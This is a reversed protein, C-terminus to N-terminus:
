DLTICNEPPADPDVEHVTPDNRGTLWNLVRQSLVVNCDKYDPKGNDDDDGVDDDSLEVCNVEVAQEVQEGAETNCQNKATSLNTENNQVGDDNKLRKGAELSKNQSADTNKNEDVPETKLDTEVQLQSCPIIVADLNAVASTTAQPGVDFWARETRAVNETSADMVEPEPVEPELSETSERARTRKKPPRADDMESNELTDNLAADDLSRWDGTWKRKKPINRTNMIPEQATGNQSASSESPLLEDSTSVEQNDVPNNQSLEHEDDNVGQNENAESEQSGESAAESPGEAAHTRMHAKLNRFKIHCVSCEQLYKRKRKSPSVVVDKQVKKEKLDKHRQVHRNFRELSKFTKQKDCHTCVYVKFKLHAITRHMNLAEVDSFPRDCDNCFQINSDHGAILHTRLALLSICPLSCINCAYKSSPNCLPADQNRDTPIDSEKLTAPITNKETAADKATTTVEKGKCETMHQQLRKNTILNLDCNACKISPVEQELHTYFHTYLEDITLCVQDCRSCETCEGNSPGATPARHNAFEHIALARANQCQEKCFWCPHSQHLRTHIKLEQSTNVTKNCGKISCTYQYAEPVSDAKNNDTAIDAHRTCDAKPLNFNEPPTPHEDKLHETARDQDLFKRKCGEVPCMYVRKIVRNKRPGFTPVAKEPNKPADTPLHAALRHERLKQANFFKEKCHKCTFVRRIAVQKRVTSDKLSVSTIPSIRSKGETSPISVPPSAVECIGSDDSSSQRHSPRCLLFM